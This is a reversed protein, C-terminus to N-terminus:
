GREESRHSAPPALSPSPPGHLPTPYPAPPHPSPSPPHRVPSRSTEAIVSALLQSQPGASKVDQRNQERIQPRSASRPPPFFGGGQRPSPPSTQWSGQGRADLLRKPTEPHIRVKNRMELVEQPDTYLPVFQNPNEIRIPTGSTAKEVEDAKLWQTGCLPCGGYICATSLPSGSLYMNCLPSVRGMFTDPASPLGRYLGRHEAGRPQPPPIKFYINKPSTPPISSSLFVQKPLHSKLIFTKQPPFSYLLFPFSANFLPM